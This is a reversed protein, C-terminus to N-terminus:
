DPRLRLPQGNPTPGMNPGPVVVQKAIAKNAGDMLQAAMQRAQMPTYARQETIVVVGPAYGVATRVEGPRPLGPPPQSNDPPPNQEDSM